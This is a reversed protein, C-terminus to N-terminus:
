RCPRSMGRGQPRGQPPALRVVRRHRGRRRGADAAAKRCPGEAQQERAEGASLALNDSDLTDDVWRFYAYARYADAVRGRDVLFRVTYYTQKSAARTISAALNQQTKITNM